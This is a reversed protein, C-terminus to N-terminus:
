NFIGVWTQPALNENGNLVDTPIPFYVNAHKWETKYGTASFAADITGTRRLDWWRQDSEFWFEIRREHIIADILDTQSTATTNGLGGRLVRVHNLDSAAGTLDGTRARAEARILWVETMRLSPAIESQDESVQYYNGYYNKYKYDWYATFDGITFYSLFADKRKDGTEFAAVLGSSAAPTSTAGTSNYRYGDYVGNLRTNAMILGPLFTYAAYQVGYYAGVGFLTENGYRLYTSDPDQVMEYGVGNNIVDTAATAALAYKEHYLYVRALLAKAVYKDRFFYPNGGNTAPLLSVADALDTEIQTFIEEETNRPLDEVENANSSLVLPVGGFVSMLRYFMWARLTKAEGIYANRQTETMDATADPLGELLFNCYYICTYAYKFSVPPTMTNDFSGKILNGLTYDGYLNLSYTTYANDCLCAWWTDKLGDARSLGYYAENLIEEIVDTNTFALESNLSTIDEEIELQKECSSLVVTLMLCAATLIKFIHNM